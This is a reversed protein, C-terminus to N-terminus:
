AAHATTVCRQNERSLDRSPFRGGGQRPSGCGRAIELTRPGAVIRGTQATALGARILEVTQEITFGQALM